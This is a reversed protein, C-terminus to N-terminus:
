RVIAHDKEAPVQATKIVEGDVTFFGEEFVEGDVRARLANFADCAHIDADINNLDDVDVGLEKAIACKFEHESKETPKCHLRPDNEDTESQGVFLLLDLEQAGIKATATAYFAFEDATLKHTFTVSELLDNVREQLTLKYDPEAEAATFSPTAATENTNLM